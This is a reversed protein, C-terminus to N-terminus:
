LVFMRTRKSVTFLFFQRVGFIQFHSVGNFIWRCMGILRKYPLVGRGGGGGGGGRSPTPYVKCHTTFDLQITEKLSELAFVLGLSSTM